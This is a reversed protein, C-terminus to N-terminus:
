MPGHPFSTCGPNAVLNRIRRFSPVEGRYDKFVSFRAVNRIRSKIDAVRVTRFVLVSKHPSNERFGASHLRVFIRHFDGYVLVM